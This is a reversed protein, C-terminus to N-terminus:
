RAEERDDTIETLEAPLNAVLWDRMVEATGTALSELMTFHDGPVELMTHAEKWTPQWPKEGAPGPEAEGMADAARLFLIPADIDGPTWEGSIRFYWDMSTLRTTDMQGALEERSLLGDMMDPGSAGLAASDDPRFSDMMVVAAPRIDLGELYRATAQAMLGGASHGFLVFRGSEVRTRVAEGLVAAAAEISTPLSEGEAFGPNPLAELDHKGRFAAAMRAYQHVGGLGAYSSFAILKARAPGRALTVPRPLRTADAATDFTPRLKSVARLIEWTEYEKGLAIGRHFLESLTEGRDDGAAPKPRAARDTAGAPTAADLSDALQERVFRALDTPVPHDFVLSAPLRLGTAANLGNRLEVSTLSDFGLEALGRDPEIAEPGAHGLVAAAYSRVLRLLELEQEEVTMAALRELLAGSDVGSGGGGAPRRGLPVLAKLVRPLMEGQARLADVDLKVPALLPEDIGLSVDFMRLAEATPLPAVAGGGVRAQDIREPTAGPAVSRAWLGWALSVAPLGASRRHHALADLFTNAAAYNGQGPLGLTGAVSSFLVFAALDLDKTLEHLNLAVDVKPRLVTDLREPTLAAIMGDDMAVAVHVVATLPHEVAVGALVAGLAARDTADCAVVDVEAGLGTLEATLEAVGEAAAGRRSTLLLQRVGHEAVLHRAITGGLSGTGGVILVTGEPDWEAVASETAAVRTLRAARAQGARVVVQPEGAALAAPLAARSRPDDDVDVLVIRGPNEWQASRVLGWVAAGALDDVPEGDVALAGKTLVVLRASAPRDDALWSQVVELARHAAVRTAEADTGPSSPWLVVEVGSIGAEVVDGLAAVDPYAEVTPAGAHDAGAAELQEHLRPEDDGLVVWIRADPVDVAPTPLWELHFLSEHYVANAAALAETSMPRFVLSDVSAVLAGSPDAATIAISDRTRPSLRVRLEAAGAAHLAIGSWSFPFMNAGEDGIDVVDLGLAHLAADLLAPHLGFQGAEAPDPLAVEALVDAGHRWAARLGRFAPGYGYFGDPDTGYFGELGIPEAGEPPWADANEAAGGAGVALIGTLHRTWPQEEPAGEPRSHVALPRAGAADPAEVVVQLQVGGRGPMVLPAEFVLEEVLDCGVQDGARIALEVFATGPFLNMGGVVHDALWTQTSVSLRGTFLYGDSGALRVGAGLLPHEAWVLGLSAPDGGIAPAEPWFRERQFAYTPLEVVAPEYSGFVRTWDPSVGQTHLEALSTHFRALGGEERRLTGVVAARTGTDELTEQVGMTLVPHSSVEVFATFGAGALGRIAADFRVTERLNTYWYRGGLEAPDIWDGTVTSFLPVAAGRPAIPALAEALTEEIREVQASHSAYDVTITKARVDDAVCAAVLEALAVPEGSVVVASPGNVTAISLRPEWPQIRRRAEAETVGLSAMGGRGSLHRGIAQSRLVVVRAADDLSLVGAVCAAAIEGQSHGVVADPVIGVSRWLEALSVMVAFSVPQVVDVRDLSPAGDAARLVDLLSWGVLGDLALACEGIREAFAPSSELLEAAMGAWQAGQGPFVFATKGKARVSGRTVNGAGLGAALADLGSRFQEPESAVVAARHEFMSRGTALSFGVDAPDLAGHDDVYSSLRAAQMRLAPETKASLVWPVPGVERPERGAPEGVAEPEEIIVHANTGSIGFSSIGARRPGGAREWPVPETLLRVNGAAWDVQPTPEDVHMTKPLLGNRMALIMKIIGAAGAAAQTHGLNSKVSGLWLPRDDPHDQGYTALLAQAEIPDGLRTGTGHAEVVDVDAGGLNADALAQRIVRQQSPGNPATLGNSAGDQNVATGRVIALVRHGNRRADSLREVLLMGLGEGWGTGDASAAFSKSRGSASLARQRSYDVFTSPTSMVTVGGALALSCEGKRLAQCALHLTVLSSSCATDITVAPGELGLVYSVRGSAVSGSTGTGVYGEAGDPLVVLQAGYDHYMVGAFVGTETGQLSYPDIGAAEVAEWAGQLLLRQQPDMALAERPSIGFFAPDFDAADYLFGGERVYSSGAQDPDAAFLAELNWGRDTPLPSIGDGGAEVLRWLDEPSRVGGPYQCSMGVIAIPEDDVRAATRAPARSVNAGSVQELLYEALVVPNPYDFVLTAPLRLGTAAGLGNRLELATLSDFGLDRFARDPDVGDRGAHGLVAAAQARVLEVVAERRQDDDLGALREGLLSGSMAAAGAVGASRRRVAPVLSRWIPALSEGIGRLAPLDLRMPVTLPGAAAAADFLATGEEVSLALVGGRAIRSRDTEDLRGTMASDEDWLGWALSRGPLGQEARAAMLADLFANAAAYNGQGAAGLVGSVSSFVVFQRLDAGRTLEHLNWAADAKPRLVGDLRQPTLSEIVGDDLVGALHVVGTLPHDAPVQALLAALAARDAVDCAALEVRAGLGTLERTLDEAGDAAAGRRSVLLLRRVGHGAVLHRAFIRGLLGTGGTLLVTGTGWGPEAPEAVPEARNLRPVTVVGRRLAVQPEGASVAAALAAASAPDEDVDVLCFRGPNEAQASRILGWAASHALDRAGDGAGTSVAGRTLLVLTSAAFRPDALWAQAWALAEHAATHLLAPLDGAGSTLAVLVFEPVTAGAEVRAGLDALDACADAAVGTGAALDVEGVTAWRRVRAGDAAPAAVWDVAFLSGAGAGPARGLDTGVARLVLSDVSLVPQGDADSVRLSVADAGDPTLRVRLSSAGAAHLTVGTWSFPLVTAGADAGPLAAGSGVGLSHLGADLLAPHLGFRGADGVAEDPLNVEAFLEDGLRWVAELGQFVPGYGLGADALRDYAGSLDVPEAGAPPWAPAEEPATHGGSGLMGTAHLTWPEAGTDDDPRSHVSVPRSGADDAGGVVVQLRVGGHEPLRLPVTLTLEEVRDCGIEDGARIALELLATGPLLITGLIVHEALWPHSQASLRGTLVAGDSGALGVAAGLLPHEPSSLGLYRMGTLAGGSDLWYRQRQFPYTPLEVQRAGRGAFVASWDPSMGHVHLAGLATALADPEDRDKRLAPVIVAGDAQDGLSEQVMPTLAADPGLEVFGTVGEAHLARVGDHFRVAERVHRVWYEATCLEGPEVLRGTVNSVVPISPDQYSLGEAVLRFEALMPEMLPSHFAHSVRLRRTKRGQDRFREVIALVAQEGGSLVVSAPGNVAAVSLEPERGALLPLVEAETAQVAAMAGGDPLAQMLRGRAAVLTTADELSLVGAVHAAALEGISHGLLFDPRIGRTEFWRFLAVEVAFLAAQTYATRDLLGADASGPEAAMVQRLPRDLHPDFLACVSDLAEAFAPFTEALRAGMGARQAGQGSFLMATRGERAVGVLVGPGPEGAAIATIARLATERDGALVVARHEFGSRTRALSSAVDVPRLDPNARLHACLREAQGRLAEPTRGSIPWLTPGATVAEDAPTSEAPPAQEIILHANTGSVGFASIGARRPHGNETWPMSETLLRVDGASWDVHSSPEAAHLTKPLTDHRLALVMKMVGAVGAAAQTHGMNSKISGLWLPSGAPREKGYTALLAQAEIPDGLSTGTGHAEVADVDSPSLGAGALAQWIVRQQSPGNPATLGNSAGDQNVASGRLVALIPHGNRRADSLREVLLMGAGESWGVGDAGDSFPKCRGDAALGRQRSFGIFAGPTAMVTVGGALALWCEGNRLAQAALHLAVLSSSCATDVTVAPGELGLAYSVRGSMVSASNGTGIYADTDQPALAALSGYDQGNTGAFMGVRAGRLSAPDIGAHEFAEWSTELLLRQQPDMALAERPSIGFFAPDFDGAGDLFGGEKVYSTGPKDPDPDYLSDIDWGRDTPFETIADTGKSLLQWLEEPTNAGRPFRCSMGVIAIPEPEGSEVERLRQRTQHLDATVRKLYDLLKDQDAM